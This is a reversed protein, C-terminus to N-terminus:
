FATPGAKDSTGRRREGGPTRTRPCPCMGLHEWYWTDGEYTVTFDPLRFDTPDDKAFLPEEYKYSIGLRTLTDAVIVESKSRVLDGKATRHILNEPHPVGVTEPRMALSFLNTNRSLTESQQPKRFKSSRGSTRRSFFCWSRRSARSPPTSFSGLCRAPKSHSCLSSPTSTAARAKTCPSPTRLSSGSTGESPWYRFRLDPQTGFRVTLEDGRKTAETWEVIGVEGNAVYQKAATRTTESWAQRRENKIQIVKDKWVIQQDGAPKALKRRGFYERRRSKEVIVRRYELQIRRNIEDTGFPQRRVPSLIQWAEPTATGDTRFSADLATYDGRSAGGLVLQFAGMCSSTSSKTIKGTTLRLIPGRVSTRSAVHALIEDDGPPATGTVYGDSLQLAISKADQYRGRHELRIVRARREVDDELWGIIDSFTRGPGIPPLQNADGMLVLRKVGNWDIARFLAAMLDTPVMSAEDILM